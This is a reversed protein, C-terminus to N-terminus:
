LLVILSSDLMVYSNLIKQHAILPLKQNQINKDTYHSKSYNYLLHKYHLNQWNPKM